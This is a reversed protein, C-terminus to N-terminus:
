RKELKEVLKASIESDIKRAFICDSAVIADYDTEDLIAPSSGNKREWITYRLNDKEIKEKMPSNALITQFFFEEPIHVHSLERMFEKHKRTFDICYQAAQRPMSVWLMGKYLDKFPAIGDWKLGKKKQYKKYKKNWKDLQKQFPVVRTSILRHEFRERVIDNFAERPQISMYIQECADFRKHLEEWSVTLQDQGSLIHMYTVRSDKLAMKVMDIAALLHAYGGWPIRYKSFFTANEFQLARMEKVSIETSKKDIHVYVLGEKQLTSVLRILQEKNKYATILFAQM